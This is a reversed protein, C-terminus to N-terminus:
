HLCLVDFNQYIVKRNDVTHKLIQEDPVSGFCLTSLYRYCKHLYYKCRLALHGNHTWQLQPCQGPGTM